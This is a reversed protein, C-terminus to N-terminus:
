KLKKLEANDQHSTAMHIIEFLLLAALSYIAIMFGIDFIKTSLYLVAFLVLGSSMSVMNRIMSFFLPREHHAQAILRSEIPINVMLGLMGALMTTLYVVTSTEFTTRAIWILLLATAGLIIFIHKKERSIKGILFAGIIKFLPIGVAIIAVAELQNQFILFIFISWIIWEVHLHLRFTFLSFLNYFVNRNKWVKEWPMNMKCYKGTKEVRPIRSLPVLSLLLVLIALVTAGVKDNTTLIVVSGIIPSVVQAINQLAFSIGTNESINKEDKITSDYLYYLAVYYLADYTAAFIALLLIMTLNGSEAFLYAVFFLIHLVTAIIITNKAGFRCVSSRGVLNFPVNIAYMILYYLLVERISFGTSLLLIPIFIGVMRSGITDLVGYFQFTWFDKKRRM